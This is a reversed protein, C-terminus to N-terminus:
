ARIEEYTWNTTRGDAIVFATDTIVATDGPRMIIDRLDVCPHLNGVSDSVWGPRGVVQAIDGAANWAQPDIIVNQAVGGLTLTLSIQIPRTANSSQAFLLRYMRGAPVTLTHAGASTTDVAGTIEGDKFEYHGSISNYRLLDIDPSVLQSLAWKRGWDNRPTLPITDIGDVMQDKEYRRELWASLKNM